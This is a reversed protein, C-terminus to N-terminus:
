RKVQQGQDLPIMLFLTRHRIKKIEIYSSKLIVPARAHIAKPHRRSSGRASALWGRARTLQVAREQGPLREPSKGDEGARNEYANTEWDRGM